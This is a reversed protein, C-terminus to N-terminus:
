TRNFQVGLCWWDGWESKKGMGGPERIILSLGYADIMKGCELVVERGM